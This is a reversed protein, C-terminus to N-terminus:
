KEMSDPDFVRLPFLHTQRRGSERERERETEGITFQKRLFAGVIFPTQIEYYKYM